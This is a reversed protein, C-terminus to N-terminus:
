NMLVHSMDMGNAAISELYAKAKKLNKIGTMDIDWQGMVDITITGYGFVREWFSQKVRVSLVHTLINTHEEKKFIGCKHVVKNGYFSITEDKVNIIKGWLDILPIISLGGAVYVTVMCPVPVSASDWNYMTFTLLALIISMFLPFFHWFTAVSWGSKRMVFDPRKAKAM